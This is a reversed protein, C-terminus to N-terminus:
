KLEKEFHEEIMHFLHIKDAAGDIGHTKGPYAMFSVKKEAKILAELMQVSNVLHV